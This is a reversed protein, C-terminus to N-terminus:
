YFNSTVILAIMPFLTLTFFKSSSNNFRYFSDAANYSEGKEGKLGKPGPPGGDGKDGQLGRPGVQGDNGPEGQAGQDGKEGPHGRPGQPGMPGRQGPVGIVVTDIAIGFSHSIPSVQTDFVVTDRERPLREDETYVHAHEKNVTSNDSSIVDFDEFTVGFFSM